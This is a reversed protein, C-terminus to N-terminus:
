VQWWLRYTFSFMTVHAKFDRRELIQWNSCKLFTCLYCCIECGSYASRMCYLFTIILVNSTHHIISRLMGLRTSQIFYIQAILRKMVQVRRWTYNSDHLWPPHFQCPMYCSHLSSSHMYSIPQFALCFLGSLLDLRLYTSLILNIKSSFSPTTYVPHMQSLIPVLPPSKHVCYHVKLEM